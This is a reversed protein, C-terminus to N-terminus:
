KKENQEKEEWWREFKDKEEEPIQILYQTSCIDERFSCKRILNKWLQKVRRCYKYSSPMRSFVRGEGNSVFLTCKCHSGGIGDKYRVRILIWKAEEFVDSGLDIAPVVVLEHGPFLYDEYVLIFAKPEKPLVDVSFGGVKGNAEWNYAININSAKGNGGNFLILHSYDNGYKEKHREYFYHQYDKVMQKTDYSKIEYRFEIDPLIARKSVTLAYKSIAVAIVGIAIGSIIAWQDLTLSELFTAVVTIANELM